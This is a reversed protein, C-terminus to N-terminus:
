ALGATEQRAVPAVARGHRREGAAAEVQVGFQRLARFPVPAIAPDPCQADNGAFPLIDAAEASQRRRVPEARVARHM